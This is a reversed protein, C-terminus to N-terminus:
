LHGRSDRSLDNATEPLCYRDGSSATPASHFVKFWRLRNPARDIPNALFSSTHLSHPAFFGSRAKSHPEQWEFSRPERALQERSARSLDTEAWNASEVSPYLASSGFDMQCVSYRPRRAKFKNKIARNTNMRAMFRDVPAPARFMATTSTKKASEVVLNM